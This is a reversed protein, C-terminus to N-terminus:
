TRAWRALYGLGLGYAILALLTSAIEIAWQSSSHIFSRFPSTLASAAGDIFRRPQATPRNGHTSVVHSSNLEAVQAKSAGSAQGFAFLAFSALVLACCAVSCTILGRSIVRRQDATAMVLM